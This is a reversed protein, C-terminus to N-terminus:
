SRNLEPANPLQRKRSAALRKRVRGCPEEIAMWILTSVGLAIALSLVGLVLSSAHLHESVLAIVVQHVLYLSYSLTGLFRVSRLNLLRYPGFKPYRIGISFVPYLCIGQLTYRATERFVPSRVAFSLVLGLLGLALLALELRTPRDRKVGDLMPNGYVALACGFLMSDMRTDSALYTRDTNAHVLLVLVCRWALAAACLAWLITRQKQGPYGSRLLWGYLAPFLLYFHEEVALSWYVGTGPAIGDWGHAAIWYNSFHLAQALVSSVALKGPLMGFETLAIAIVLVFYFPPLIRLVRRLYFLKLDIGGTKTAEIRMLTTILYGSLFFFVTVGFGGPGGFGAHASFVIMFSIARLGDLSPIVFGGHGPDAASSSSM